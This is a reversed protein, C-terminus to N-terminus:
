SRSACAGEETGATRSERVLFRRVGQDAGGAVLLCEGPVAPVMLVSQEDAALALTELVAGSADCLTLENNTAVLMGEGVPAYGKANRPLATRFVTRFARGEPELRAVAPFWSDGLGLGGDPLDFLTRGLLLGEAPHERLDGGGPGLSLVRRPQRRRADDVILFLRDGHQRCHVLQGVGGLDAGTAALDLREVVRLAGDLRTLLLNRSGAIWFGGPAACCYAAAFAPDELVEPRRGPRFVHVAPKRSEALLVAELDPAYGASFAELGSGLRDRSRLLGNARSGELMRRGQAFLHDALAIWQDGWIFAGSANNEGAERALEEYTWLSHRLAPSLEPRM